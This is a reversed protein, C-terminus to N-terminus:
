SEDKPEILYVTHDLSEDYCKSIDFCNHDGFYGKVTCYGYCPSIGNLCCISTRAGEEITEAYRERCFRDEYTQDSCTNPLGRIRENIGIPHFCANPHKCAERIEDNTKWIELNLCFGSCSYNETLEPLCCSLDGMNEGGILKCDQHSRCAYASLPLTTTTEGPLITPLTVEDGGDGFGGEGGTGIPDSTVGFGFSIKKDTDTIGGTRWSTSSFAMVLSISVLFLILSLAVMRNRNDIPFNSTFYNIIFLIKNSTENLIDYTKKLSDKFINIGMGLIQLAESLIPIAM